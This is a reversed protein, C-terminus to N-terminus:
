EHNLKKNKRIIKLEKRFEQLQLEIWTQTAFDGSAEKLMEKHRKIEAILEKERNNDM